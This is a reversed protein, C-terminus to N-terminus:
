SCERHNSKPVAFPKPDPRMANWANWAAHHANILALGDDCYTTGTRCQDCIQRHGQWKTAARAFKSALDRSEVKKIYLHERAHRCNTAHEEIDMRLSEPNGAAFSRGCECNFGNPGAAILRNTRDM